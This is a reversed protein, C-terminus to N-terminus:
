GPEMGHMKIVVAAPPATLFKVFEKAAEPQKATHGARRKLLPARRFRLGDALARRLQALGVFLALPLV